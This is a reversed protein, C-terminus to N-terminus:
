HEPAPGGYFNPARNVTGIRAVQHHIDAQWAHVNGTYTDNVGDRFVRMKIVSDPEIESSLIGSPDPIETVVHRYQFDAPIVHDVYILTGQTPFASQSHGKAIIYLFGWRVRGATAALPMWHVHPYVKTNIAIDHDFHFDVWVQNMKSASFILGEFGPLYEDWTPNNLGSTSKVVFSAKEDKWVFGNNSQLSTNQGDVTYIIPDTTAIKLKM